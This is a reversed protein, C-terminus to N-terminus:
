YDPPWYGNRMLYASALEDGINYIYAKKDYELIEKIDGNDLVYPNLKQESNKGYYNKGHLIFSLKIVKADNHNNAIEWVIEAIDYATQSYLEYDVEAEAVVIGNEESIVDFGGGKFLNVLMGLLILFVIIPLCGSKPKNVVESM